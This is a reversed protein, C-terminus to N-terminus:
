TAHTAAHWAAESRNTVRDIDQPLLFRRQVLEDVIAKSRVLHDGLAPLEDLWWTSGFMLLDDTPAGIDPHRVNWGTHVGVPAAIDPLQIGCTENGDAGIAPVPGPPQVFSEARPTAIGSSQCRALVAERTTLQAATPATNPEPETDHDVWDVLQGLLARLVPRYDVTNFGHQGRWMWGLAPLEFLLPLHGPAHQTGAIHHVRVDPHADAGVSAADGRWYENSTNVAMVKGSAGARALLTGYTTDPDLEDTNSPLTGPIAFRQNFQGRRGGAILPMFADYAARGAEDLNLGDHLFQRLARGSQSVGFLLTRSIGQESRLWPALDRLALLGCGGVLAGNTQYVCRYWSGAKFGDPRVM